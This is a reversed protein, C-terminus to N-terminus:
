IHILSLRPPAEKREVIDENPLLSGEEYGSEILPLGYSVQFLIVLVIAKIVVQDVGWKLWANILNTAMKLTRVILIGIPPISAM